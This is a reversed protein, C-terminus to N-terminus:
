MRLSQMWLIRREREYEEARVVKKVNVGDHLVSYVGGVKMSINRDIFLKVPVDAMYTKKTTDGVVSEFVSCQEVECVAYNGEFRELSAYSMIEMFDSEKNLHVTQFQTAM